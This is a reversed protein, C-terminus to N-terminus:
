PGAWPPTWRQSGRLVSTSPVDHTRTPGEAATRPTASWQRMIKKVYARTQPYPTIGKHARVAVEGRQLALRAAPKKDLPGILTRLAASRTSTTARSFTGRAPPDGGDGILQMLGPRRPAPRRAPLICAAEIVAAIFRRVGYRTARGQHDRSTEGTRGPDAAMYGAVITLLLLGCARSRHRFVFSRARTHTASWSPRSPGSAVLTALDTTHARM